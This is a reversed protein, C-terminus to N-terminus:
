RLNFHKRCTELVGFKVLKGIETSLAARDVNLYDALQQRTFPIEFSKSKAAESQMRLYALLKGATSHQSLCDIKRSLAINRQALVGLLHSILRIHFPCNRQCPNLLRAGDLLLSETAECAEINAFYRDAGGLAFSTGFSEGAVLHSLVRSRGDVSYRVVNVSGSVIIGFRSAKEGERVLLEGAEVKRRQAGLCAL